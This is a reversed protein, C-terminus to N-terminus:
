DLVAATVANVFLDSNTRGSVGDVLSLTVAFYVGVLDYTPDVWMFVGGAGPHNFAEPSMRTGPFCKWNDGAFINWGYEWNAEAHIEGFANAGIGVIQNRTMAAVTPGSLVRREGYTGGNLFMQAFIAIDRASSLLGGAASPRGLLSEDIIRGFPVDSPRRVVQAKAEEPIIYYSDKMRLPGFVREEAFEALSRGSVRRVIEGLLTYNCNCYSMEEGPGMTLPAEYNAFLDQHIKLHQNAECEPFKGDGSIPELFSGLHEEVIGSTHTLLHHVLVGDKGEGKFEPIYDQVPRNLGLLGDEVLAMVCTATIPKTVSALPFISDRELPPAYAEPGLVGYAEDIVVVGRRAVFAATASTTGDVVWGATLERVREGGAASMGAEEATGSRFEM